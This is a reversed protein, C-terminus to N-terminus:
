QSIEVQEVVYPMRRRGPSTLGVHYTENDKIQELHREATSDQM